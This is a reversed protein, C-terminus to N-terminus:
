SKARTAPTAAATRPAPASPIAAVAMVPKVQDGELVFASGGLLVRAGPQPGSVLEVWGGGHRGTRVRVERARNQADLAMVAAGEASYRIASEPAALVPRNLGTFSAKAFGGARLDGRPPLSIRVRGLKTQDNVEPSVYRVNGFVPQGSAPTVEAVTGPRIAGLDAEPVDAQLEVLGDRIIRFMPTSGSIDGPRVSREMVRGSVPARITLRAQRTLLDQLNARQATVAAQASRAAYRREEVQEQALVGEKDLGQVRRAQNEAQSALVQQRSLEARAQNIQSRILTDDLQVLPQGARVWQDVDAYVRAVRYGQIESSVAAEERPTLVGNSTLGGTMPRVEILAVRVARPAQANAGAKGKEAQAKQGCASLGVPASLALLAAAIWGLRFSRNATV